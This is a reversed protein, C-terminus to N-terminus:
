CSESRLGPFALAILGLRQVLSFFLSFATPVSFAPIVANMRLPPQLRGYTLLSTFNFQPYVVQLSFLICISLIVAGGFLNSVAFRKVAQYDYRNGQEM